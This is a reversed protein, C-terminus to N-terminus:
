MMLYMALDDMTGADFPNCYVPSDYFAYRFAPNLEYLRFRYNMPKEKIHTSVDVGVAVAAARAVAERQDKNQTFPFYLFFGGM